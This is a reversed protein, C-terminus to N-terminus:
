KGGGHADDGVRRADSRRAQMDNSSEKYCPSQCLGLLCRDGTITVLGGGGEGRFMHHAPLNKWSPYM